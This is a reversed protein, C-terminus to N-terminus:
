LLRTFRSYKMKIKFISRPESKLRSCKMKIKLISRPESKLSLSLKGFPKKELHLTKETDEACLVRIARVVLPTSPHSHIEARSLHFPYSPRHIKLAVRKVPWVIEPMLVDFTFGRSYMHLHGKLAAKFELQPGYLLALPLSAMELADQGDQGVAFMRGL